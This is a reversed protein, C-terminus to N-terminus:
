ARKASCACHIAVCARLAGPQHLYELDGEGPMHQRAHGAHTRLGAGRGTVERGSPTGADAACIQRAPMVGAYHRRLKAGLWARGSGHWSTPGAAATGRRAVVGEDRSDRGVDKQTGM